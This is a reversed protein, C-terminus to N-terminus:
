RVVALSEEGKGALFGAYWGDWQMGAPHNILSSGGSKPYVKVAVRGDASKVLSCVPLLKGDSQQNWTMNEPTFVMVVADKHGSRDLPTIRFTNKTAEVRYRGTKCSIIQEQRQGEQMSLPNDGSWFEIVNLIATDIMAAAGYVPIITLAWFVVSRVFRDEISGNWDYVRTLLSFSGFCGTQTILVSGLMLALLLKRFKKMM